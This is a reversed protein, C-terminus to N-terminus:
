GNWDNQGGSLDSRIMRGVKMAGSGERYGFAKAMEICHQYIAERDFRHGDASFNIAQHMHAAKALWVDRAAAVLDYAYGDWYIAAGEQDAAFTISLDRDYYTYDALLIDIGDSRYLRFNKEGQAPAEVFNGIERPIEYRQYVMVGNINQPRPTLYVGTFRKRYADLAAQLHDDSWYTEGALTYDAEGAECKQRLRSILSAMGARAAM